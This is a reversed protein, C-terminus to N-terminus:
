GNWYLRGDKRMFGAPSAEQKADGLGQAPRGFYYGQGFQVGLSKLLEATGADEIMEAIMAIKLDRCLQAIAKLFPVDHLKTLVHQVYSGDIKVFDVTLARLYHFAANGAGFDDLCVPHGRKRLEQLRDNAASLDRVEASETMEFLLRAGFPPAADLQKFLRNMFAPDAVSHGSLNVALSVARDGMFNKHMLGVVREYIARDLHGILGTDEAFTVLRFPSADGAESANLRALCEFHHVSKDNLSVVPQYALGFRGESILAKLRGMESVTGSLATHIGKNLADVTFVSGEQRSFQNITYVLAQAAEEDSIDAQDLDLTALRVAMSQGAQDALEAIKSKIAGESLDGAHVVGFKTEDLLGASDGGVSHDRLFQALDNKFKEAAKPGAKAALAAVEPLELLTLDYDLGAHSAEALRAKAIAAFDEKGPLSGTQANQRPPLPPPASPPRTKLALFLHGEFDGAIQYGSLSIDRETGDPMAVCLPLDPIRKGQCMRALAQELRAQEAKVFLDFLTGSEIARAGKGVLAMAQGVAFVIKGEATAELLM